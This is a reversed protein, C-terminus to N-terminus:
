SSDDLDGAEPPGGFESEESGEERMAEIVLKKGPDVMSQVELFATSLTSTSPKSNVYYLWGRGEMWLALRHLGYLALAAAAVFLLIKM